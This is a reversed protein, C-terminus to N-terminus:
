TAMSVDADARGASEESDAAQSSCLLEYAEMEKDLNKIGGQWFYDMGTSPSNRDTPFIFLSKLAIATKTPRRPPTPVPLAARVAQLPLRIMFSPPPPESEDDNNSDSDLNAVADEILQDALQDFDLVDEGSEGPDFDTTGTDDSSTPANFNRHGRSRVLGAEIHSRKIDMGVITTKRVKDVGLKSRIATHVLGMHSFARECGASNAIVSLIHLALKVLRNRGCEEHTDIGEWVEIPDV